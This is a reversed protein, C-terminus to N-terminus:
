PSLGSAAQKSARYGLAIWQLQEDWQQLTGVDLVCKALAMKISRVCREALGYAQPHNTSTTRHDIMCEELLNHFAGLFESGQDTVVEACSAYRGLVNSLFAYATTEASKDPMAILEVQKVTFHVICVMVVENGRSSVSFPGCLDVGWRYMMGNVPLPHLQPDAVNFTAKV